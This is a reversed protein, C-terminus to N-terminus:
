KGLITSMNELALILTFYKLYNGKRMSVFHSFLIVINTVTSLSQCGRYKPLQLSHKYIPYILSLHCESEEKQPEFLRGQLQATAFYMLVDRKEGKRM